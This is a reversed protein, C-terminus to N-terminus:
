VAMDMIGSTERAAPLRAALIAQGSGTWVKEGAKLMATFRSPWLLGIGAIQRFGNAEYKTLADRGAAPSLFL